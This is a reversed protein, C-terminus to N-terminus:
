KVLKQFITQDGATIRALYVGPLLSQLDNLVVANVGALGQKVVKRLLRGGADFLQVQITGANQLLLNVQLSNTFPNPFVHTVFSSGTKVVVINSYFVAGNVDTERLRYYLTGTLNTYHTYQYQTAVDNDAINLQGAKSFNVADQSYEIVFSQVNAAAYVLWNLQVQGTQYVAQLSSLQQALVTCSSTTAAAAVYTATDYGTQSTNFNVNTKTGSVSANTKNITLLQSANNGSLTGNNSITNVYVSGNGRVTGNNGLQGNVRLQANSNNVVFVNNNITFNAGVTYLGENRFGIGSTMNNTVTFYGLNIVSDSNMNNNGGNLVAKYRNYFRGSSNIDGGVTLRGSNDITGSNFNMSSSFTLNGSNIFQANSGINIANSFVMSGCSTNTVVVTNNQNWSNTFTFSGSNTITASNNSVTLSSVSVTGANNLAGSLDITNSSVTGGKQVIVTSGNRSTINGTYNGTSTVVMTAGNNLTIDTGFNTTICVTQGNTYTGGTNLTSGSPCQATATHVALITMIQAMLLMRSSIRTRTFRKM